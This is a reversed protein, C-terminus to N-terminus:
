KQRSAPYAAGFVGVPMIGDGGEVVRLAVDAQTKKTSKVVLLANTFESGNDTQIMRIPFAAHHILELLFEKSCIECGASDEAGSLRCTSIAQTKTEEEAKAQSGEAPGCDAQLGRLKPYVWAGGNRPVGAALGDLSAEEAAVTSCYRLREM